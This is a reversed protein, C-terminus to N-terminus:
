MTTIKIVAKDPLYPKSGANKIESKYYAIKYDNKFHYISLYYSGGGGNFHLIYPRHTKKDGKRPVTCYKIIKKMSMKISKGIM